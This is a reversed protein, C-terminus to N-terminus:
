SKFRNNGITKLNFNSIPFQRYSNKLKPKLLPFDLEQLVWFGGRFVVNAYFQDPEDIFVIDNEFVLYEDNINLGLDVEYDDQSVTEWCVIDVQRLLVGESTLAFRSNDFRRNFKDWVRFKL